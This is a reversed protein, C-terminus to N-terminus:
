LVLWQLEPCWQTAELVNNIPIDPMDVSFSYRCAARQPATLKSCHVSLQNDSLNSM